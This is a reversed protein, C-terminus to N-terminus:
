SVDTADIIRALTPFKQRFSDGVTWNKLERLHEEFVPNIYTETPGTSSQQFVVHSPDYPWRIDFSSSYASVFSDLTIDPHNVLHTRIQPWPFRDKWADHPITLQEPEPRLWAPLYSWSQEDQLLQWQLLASMLFHLAVRKILTNVEPYSWIIGSVVNSIENDSRLQKDVIPCLNFRTLSTLIPITSAPNNSTMSAAPSVPYQSGLTQTRFRRFLDYQIQDSLCNPPTNLPTIQWLPRTELVPESGQIMGEIHEGAPGRLLRLRLAAVQVHLSDNEDELSQMKFALEASHQSEHELAQKLDSVQQTLAQIIYKNRDRMAQQAKRDRARKRALEEESLVYPRPATSSSLSDPGDSAM